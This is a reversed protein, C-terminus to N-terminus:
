AMGDEYMPLELEKEGKIRSVIFIYMFDAILLVSILDGAIYCFDVLRVGDYLLEVIDVTGLTAVWFALVSSVVGVKRSIHLQPLWSFARIYNDLIAIISTPDDIVWAVLKWPSFGASALATLLGITVAAAYLLGWHLLAPPERDQGFVAYWLHHTQKRGFDDDYKEKENIDNATKPQLRKDMLLLSAVGLLGCIVSGWTQLKWGADVDITRDIPMNHMWDNVPYWCKKIVHLVECTTLALITQASLGQIIGKRLANYVFASASCYTGVVVPVLAYM